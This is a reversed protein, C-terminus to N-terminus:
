KEAGKSIVAGDKVYIIGEELDSPVDAVKLIVILFGASESWITIADMTNSDLSEGNDVVIVKIEGSFKAAISFFVKVSEATSWNSVKNTDTIGRIAGNYVLQNEESIELGKVGLNMESLVLKRKERLGEIEQTLRKYEAELADIKEKKEIYADYENAKKEIEVWNSYKSELEDLDKQTYVTQGELKDRVCKIADDIVGHLNGIEEISSFVCKEKIDKAAIEFAGEVRAMYVMASERETKIQEICPPHETEAPAEGLEGLARKDRGIETRMTEKDKLEADIENIKKTIGCRDKLIEIIKADTLDRMAWPLEFGSRISELFERVGGSVATYRGSKEDLKQVIQKVTKGSIQTKIKVGDDTVAIIEAQSEGLRIMGPTFAKPGELTLQIAQAITSKGSGNMGQIVQLGPGHFQVQAQVIKRCNLIQLERLLM